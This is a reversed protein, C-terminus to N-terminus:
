KLARVISPKAYFPRKGQRSRQELTLETVKVEQYVMSTQCQARKAHMDEVRQTHRKAM